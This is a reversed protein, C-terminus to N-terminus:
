IAHDPTEGVTRLDTIDVLLHSWPEAEVYFERLQKYRILALCANLANLEGIQVNARYLDDDHDAMEALGRRRVGLPDGAAVYTMRLMGGLAGRRRRLGMGVDIFPIARSILLDWIGARASGKDVCVFAFTVGEVEADADLDIYKAEIRLGDRFTEYRARHVDAKPQGLEQPDLRGPSRFANHVHFDDADFGRVEAVPTRVMMDLLYGGTGGLGIIAVVEDQFRAALDAIEARSTLSDRYRFVSPAAENDRARYTLPTAGYRETAPGSIIAAYSEIKEFFDAFRGTARPKNSFSRKVVVDNSAASMALSAPGGGLNRIARNDLGYPAGGAFFVQHDDQQVRCEDVFVLKAVIAGWALAGDADLYPIDRVVLYNADDFAVAYGADVLRQLDPNHSVLKRFM